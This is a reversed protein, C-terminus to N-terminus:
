RAAGDAVTQTAIDVRLAGCGAHMSDVAPSSGSLEGGEIIRNRRTSADTCTQMEINGPKGAQKCGLAGRVQRGQYSSTVDGVHLCNWAIGTFGSRSESLLSWDLIERSAQRRAERKVDLCRRTSMHSFLLGLLSDPAPIVRDLPQM